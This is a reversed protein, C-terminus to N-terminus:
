QASPLRTLLHAVFDQPRDPSLAVWGDDTALWVVDRSNSLYLRYHGLRPSWFRGFHGFIGRSGFMTLGTLTRVRTDVGRISRYPIVLVGARRHVQVGDAGLAYAAPAFRGFVWLALTFPVSAFLWRPDGHKVAFVVGAISLVVVGLGVAVM